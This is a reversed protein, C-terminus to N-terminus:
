KGITGTCARSNTFILDFTTMPKNRLFQDDYAVNRHFKLKGHRHVNAQVVLSCPIVKWIAM